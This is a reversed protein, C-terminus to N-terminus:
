RTRRSEGSRKPTLTGGAALSMQRLATGAGFYKGSRREVANGCWWGAPGQDFDRPREQKSTFHSRFPSGPIHFRDAHVVSLFYDGDVPVIYTVELAGQETWTRALRAEAPGDVCVDVSLPRSRDVGAVTFRAPHGSTICM